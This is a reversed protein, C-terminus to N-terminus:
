TKAAENVAHDLKDGQQKLGDGSTSASGPKLTAPASGAGLKDGQRKPSDASPKAAADTERNTEDAAPTERTANM